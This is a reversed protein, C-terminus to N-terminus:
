KIKPTIGVISIMFIANSLSVEQLDHESLLHLFKYVHMSQM